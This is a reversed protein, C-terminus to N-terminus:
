RVVLVDCHAHRTVGESVSGHLLRDLLGRDHTGVVILDAAYRDALGVIAGAPEGVEVDYEVELTRGTLLERAHDLQARHEDPTDAPDYPGLGHAAAGGPLLRASSTVVLRTGSTEALDAARLLAKNSAHTGDYGVVITKWDSMVIRWQWPVADGGNHIV